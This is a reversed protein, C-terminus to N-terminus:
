KKATGLRVFQPPVDWLCGLGDFKAISALLKGDSSYVMGDLGQNKGKFIALIHGTALDRLEIGTRDAGSVALLRHNPSVAACMAVTPTPFTGKKAGTTVDFTAVDFFGYHGIVTRNDIFLGWAPDVRKTDIKRLHKGTVVEWTDLHGADGTTAGLLLKGDPSFDLMSLPLGIDIVTLSRNSAVDWVEIQKEGSWALRAADKSWAVSTFTIGKAISPKIRKAELATQADLLEISDFQGAAAILKDDPSLSFAFVGAEDPSVASPPNDKGSDTDWSKMGGNPISRAIYVRKSGAGFSICQVDEPCPMTFRAQVEVPKDAAFCAQAIVGALLLVMSSAFKPKRSGVM